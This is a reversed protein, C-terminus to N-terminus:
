EDLGDFLFGIFVGFLAILLGSGLVKNALEHSWVKMLAGSMLLAGGSLFYYGAITTMIRPIMM